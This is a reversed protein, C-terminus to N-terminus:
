HLAIMAFLMSVEAIEVAAGYIDGTLGGLLRRLWLALLLAAAGAVLAPILLRVGLAVIVLLMTATAVVVQLPRAEGNFERGLGEPRAYPFFVILPVVAWRGVAPFAMLSLLDRRQVAEAIAVVKATLLLILASAGHAGIRSDHMISLMRMRDGRGGGVADFMDAVGDLHIAGTLAALLAVMLVAILLPPLSGVLLYSLGTIMLGLVLGVMPFFAVSRGLDQDRLPGVWVPLRTLFAFAAVLARM